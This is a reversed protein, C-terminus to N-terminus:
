ENRAQERLWAEMYGVYRAIENRVDSVSTINTLELPRSYVEEESATDFLKVFGRLNRPPPADGIFDVTTYKLIKYGKVMRRLETQTSKM